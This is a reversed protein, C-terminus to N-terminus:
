QYPWPNANYYHSNASSAGGGQVVANSGGAGQQSEVDVIPANNNSLDRFRHM